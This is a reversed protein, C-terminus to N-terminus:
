GEYIIKWSGDNERRWYQLKEAASSFDNSLYQQKFKVVFMNDKGPYAFLSNIKVQVQVFTKTNNVDKKRRLWNDYNGKGFNFDQEAYNAVMADVDLSEWDKRWKEVVALYDNRRQKLEDFAVWQIGDSLVVPTRKEASVYQSIDLLDDNSLVFCGESAWPSRAYTDSPTGHLWIGYGTRKLYRDFRNPYNVPFAGKGYLDPLKKGEIFDNIEYVGVPTKNDGEHQKGFGESGVTLYYDRVLRPEGNFNQYVYLRGNPMDAVLVYPHDGLAILSAPIKSHSNQGQQSKHIWRNRLQHKLGKLNTEPLASQAGIETLGTAMGQLIDARLLHGIQSKPFKALHADSKKLAIDLKGAQLYEIIELVDPEYGDNANVAHLNIDTDTQARVVADVGMMLISFLAVISVVRYM